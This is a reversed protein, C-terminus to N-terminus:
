KCTLTFIIIKKNLNENLINVLYTDKYKMPIFM